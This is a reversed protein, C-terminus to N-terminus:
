RTRAVGVREIRVSELARTLEPLRTSDPHVGRVVVWQNPGLEVRLLAAGVRPLNAKGGSVVGTELVAARGQLARVSRQLWAVTPNVACGVGLERCPSLAAGQEGLSGIHGLQEIVVIIAGASRRAWALEGVRRYGPPICLSLAFDRASASERAWDGDSTRPCGDAVGGGGCGALAVALLLPVAVSIRLPRLM